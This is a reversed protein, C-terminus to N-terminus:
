LIIIHSLNMNNSNENFNSNFILKNFQKQFLNLKVGKDIIQSQIVSFSDKILQKFKKWVSIKLKNFLINWNTM